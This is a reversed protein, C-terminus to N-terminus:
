LQHERWGGFQPLTQVKLYFTISDRYCAISAWLTILLRPDLMKYIIPECISTLNDAKRSPRGKGEPLNTTNMETLSQASGLAM